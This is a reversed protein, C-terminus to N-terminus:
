KEQIHMEVAEIIPNRKVHVGEPLPKVELEEGYKRAQKDLWQRWNEPTVESADVERLQPFQELLYPRCEEAARPLQHTYLDDDTMFNLIDYVGEM